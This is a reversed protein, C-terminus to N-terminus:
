CFSPFPYFACGRGVIERSYIEGTGKGSYYIDACVAILTIGMAVIFLSLFVSYILRIREQKAM